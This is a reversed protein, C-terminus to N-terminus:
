TIAAPNLPKRLLRSSEPDATNILKTVLEFNRRSQETTWGADTMPTELSFRGSTQVIFGCRSSLMRSFIIQMMHGRQHISPPRDPRRSTHEVALAVPHDAPDNGRRRSTPQNWTEM